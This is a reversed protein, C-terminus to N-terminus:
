NFNKFDGLLLVLTTHEFALALGVDGKRRNQM